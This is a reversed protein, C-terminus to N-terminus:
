PEAKADSPVTAAIMPRIQAALADADALSVEGRVESNRPSWFFVRDGDFAVACRKARFETRTEIATAIGLMHEANGEVDADSFRASTRFAAGYSTREVWSRGDHDRREIVYWDDVVSGRCVLPVSVSM